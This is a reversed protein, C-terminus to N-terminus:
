VEIEEYNESTDNASTLSHQGVSHCEDIYKALGAVTPAEFLTRLPLAAQFINRLRSIAQTALLSHGGLEFFNDHVSVRNLKLLEAWIAAIANEAPTRPAVFDDRLDLTSQPTAALAQRNIKGNPLSPLTDLVVFSAPVMYEPLKEQLFSRLESATPTKEKGVALYALIRKEGPTDDRTIVAAGRMAPHTRLVAEIEELEVRFGRIKVQNDVRGLFEINGDPLYRALDGTRYLREGPRSGFPKPIFRDATLEALHLYGRALAVGSIYLEGPVGIPVPHLYRDLLYIETNSIPRGIPIARRGDHRECVWATANISAETPGYTNHLDARFRSFFRAQLEVPMVEGGCFVRKLTGCYTETAQPEKLFVQLMSPPFRITTIEHRAVLEVLRSTDQYDMPRILVVAAGMSLPWFIERVSVDFGVPVTQLVRDTATLPCTERMWFLYNCIGDHSLMVGKPKGTSGSTYIVYALNKSAVESAPNDRSKKAIIQWDSDICVLQAGHEPLSGLLRQQTLIVPVKTNELIHALRATPLGPDLPVYAGGTKLIGLLGVILELSREVFVGVLYEPGIGGSRLHHALQNARINLEAYTLQQDDFAVALNNPTRKVQEEFLQHICKDKPYEIQTENWQTMLQHLENEDLIKLHGVRAEPNNLASELLMHFQSALRKIDETRVLHADYRFEAALSNDKVACTLKIKFRDICADYKFLSFSVAGGISTKPQEEFDFAIPFFSSAALGGNRRGLKEWDYYEQWDSLEEVGQQTRALIERFLSSEEFHSRIPLYKAFLGLTGELGEYTRGSHGVGIILDSQAILRWLLSQWCTLLFSEISVDYKSALAEIRRTVDPAIITTSKAPAFGTTGSPNEFPLTITSLPSFDQKAWYEIGKTDDSQLFDNQWEALDAYQMSKDSIEADHLCADYSRSLELVLNKLTITDACLAPLSMLLVHRHSSLIVHSVRLLPGKRLDFPIQSADQLFAAIKMDQQHSELNSLDISDGCVLNADNVVQVPVSMGPLRHFTTRLIEHRNVVDKLAKWLIDINLKGEMLVACQARYGNGEGEELLCLHRQQPSLQYGEILEDQMRLGSSGSCRDPEHM